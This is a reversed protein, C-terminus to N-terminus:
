GLEHMVSLLDILTRSWIMRPICYVLLKCCMQLMVTGLVAGACTCDMCVQLLQPQSASSGDCQGLSAQGQGAGLSSHTNPGSVSLGACASSHGAALCTSPPPPASNTGHRLTHSSALHAKLQVREAQLKQLLAACLLATSENGLLWSISHVANFQLLQCLMSIGPM